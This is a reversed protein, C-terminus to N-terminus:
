QSDSKKSWTAYQDQRDYFGSHKDKQADPDTFDDDSKKSNKILNTEWKDPYKDREDSKNNKYDWYDKEALQSADLLRRNQISGKSRMIMFNTYDNGHVSSTMSKDEEMTDYDTPDGYMARESQQWNEIFEPKEYDLSASAGVFELYSYQEELSKQLKKNVSDSRPFMDKKLESADPRSSYRNEAWVCWSAAPRLNDADLSKYGIWFIGGLTTIYLPMVMVFEMLVSGRECSFLKKLIRNM